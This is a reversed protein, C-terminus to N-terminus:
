WVFKTSIRLDKLTKMVAPFDYKLNLTQSNKTIYISNIKRYIHKTLCGRGIDDADIQVSEANCLLKIMRELAADDAIIYKNVILPNEHLIMIILRLVEIERALRDNLENLDEVPVDNVEIKSVAKQPEPTANNTNVNNTFTPNITICPKKKSCSLHIM